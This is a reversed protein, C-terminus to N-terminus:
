ALAKLALPPHTIVRADKCRGRGMGRVRQGRGDAPMVRDRVELITPWPLALGLKVMEPVTRDPEKGAFLVAVREHGIGRGVGRLIVAVAGPSSRLVVLTRAIRGDPLDDVVLQVQLHMFTRLLFPPGVNGRM